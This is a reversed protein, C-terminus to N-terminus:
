ESTQGSGFDHGFSCGSSEPYERRGEGEGEM